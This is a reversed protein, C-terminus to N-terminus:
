ALDALYDRGRGAQVIPLPAHGEPGAIGLVELVDDIRHAEVLARRLVGQEPGKVETEDQGRAFHEVRDAKSNLQTTKEIHVQGFHPVLTSGDNSTQQLHPVLLSPTSSGLKTAASSAAGITSGAYSGIASGSGPPGGM